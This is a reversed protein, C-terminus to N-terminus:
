TVILRLWYWTQVPSINDGSQSVQPWLCCFSTEIMGFKQARIPSSTFILIHIEVNWKWLFVVRIHYSNKYFDSQKTPESHTHSWHEWQAETRLILLRDRWSWVMEEIWNLKLKIKQFHQRHQNTNDGKREVTPSNSIDCVLICLILSYFNEFSLM